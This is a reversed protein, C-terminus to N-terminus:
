AGSVRPMWLPELGWRSFLLARVMEARVEGCAPNDWLNLSREPDAALDFLEYRDQAPDLNIQKFRMNCSKVYMAASKNPLRLSAENLPEEKQMEARLFAETLRARLAADSWLNRVEGPDDLLDYIEGYDRNFYLTIKYREDIFTKLHLTTPQHRNEVIVHKRAKSENGNWIAQQSFGTMAEPIDLGCFDLFTPAYDVLSQLSHSLRDAPIRGPLRAIM